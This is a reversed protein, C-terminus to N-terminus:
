SQYLDRIIKSAIFCGFITPMYSITGIISKKPGSEALKIMSKDAM